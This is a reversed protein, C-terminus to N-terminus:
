TGLTALVPWRSGRILQYAVDHHAREGTHHSDVALLAVVESALM